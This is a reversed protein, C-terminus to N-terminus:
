KESDIRELLRRVEETDPVRENLEDGGLQLYVSRMREGVLNQNLITPDLDNMWEKPKLAGKIKTAVLAKYLTLM